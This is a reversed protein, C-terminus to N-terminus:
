WSKGFGEFYKKNTSLDKPGDKLIGVLGLRKLGDFASEKKRQPPEAAAELAERVFESESKGRKKATSRRTPAIRREGSHQASFSEHGQHRVNCRGHRVGEM